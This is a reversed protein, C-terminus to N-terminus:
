HLLPPTNKEENSDLNINYIHLWILLKNNATLYYSIDRM